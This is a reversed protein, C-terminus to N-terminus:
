LIHQQFQIRQDLADGDIRWPRHHDSRGLGGAENGTGVQLLELLEIHLARDAIRDGTALGDVLLQRGQAYRSNGGDVAVTQATAGFQGQGATVAHGGVVGADAQGFHLQADQGAPAAGGPQRLQDACRGRHVHDQGAAVQRGLCRPGIAQHVLHHLQRQQFVGGRCQCQLPVTRGNLCRAVAQAVLVQSARL